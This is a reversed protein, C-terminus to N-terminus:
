TSPNATPKREKTPSPLFGLTLNALSGTFLETAQLLRGLSSQRVWLRAISPQQQGVLNKSHSDKSSRKSTRLCGDGTRIRVCRGVCDLSGWRETAIFGGAFRGCILARRRLSV